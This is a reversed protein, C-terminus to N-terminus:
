YTGASRKPGTVYDDDNSDFNSKRRSLFIFLFFPPPPPLGIRFGPQARMVIRVTRGARKEKKKKGGFANEVCKACRNAIQSLPKRVKNNKEGEPKLKRGAPGKRNRRTRFHSGRSRHASSRKLEFDTLGWCPHIKADKQQIRERQKGRM